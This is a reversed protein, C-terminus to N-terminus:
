KKLVKGKKAKYLLKYESPSPKKWKQFKPDPEIKLINYNYFKEYITPTIIEFTSGFTKKCYKNLLKLNKYKDWDCRRLYLYNFNDTNGMKFCHQSVEKSDLDKKSYFTYGDMGVVSVKSAGQMYSWLIARSGIEYFCGYMTNRKHYIKCKKFVRSNPDHSGMNWRNSICRFTIYPGQWHKRIRHPPFGKVFVMVSKKNVFKGYKHWRYSGGWIHFDPVFVRSVNNCGVIIVKNNKIFEEIKDKYRSVSSGACLVLVHKGKIKSLIKKKM